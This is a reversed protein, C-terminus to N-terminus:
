PRNKLVSSRAPSGDRLLTDKFLIGYYICRREEETNALELYVPHMDLLGDKSAHFREYCSSWKYLAPDEVLGAKVPNMEIYAMCALLDQDNKIIRSGFRGQWVHGVCGYRRNHWVSYSISLSRMIQTLDKLFQPEILLHLHNVMLVYAYLKFKYKLKNIILNSIYKRYDETVYFIKTRNNGRCTVHYIAGEELLRAERVM